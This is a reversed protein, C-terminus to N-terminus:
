INNLVWSTSPEDWEYFSNEPVESPYPIPPNWTKDEDNWIWSQYPSNPIFQNKEWYASGPEYIFGEEMLHYEFAGVESKIRDCTEIDGDICVAIFILKNSEDIYGYKVEISV